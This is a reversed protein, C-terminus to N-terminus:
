ASGIADRQVDTKCRQALVPLRFGSLSKDNHSISGHGCGGTILLWCWCRSCTWCVSLTKNDVLM